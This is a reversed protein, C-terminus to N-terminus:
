PLALRDLLTSLYGNITELEGPAYGLLEDEAQIYQEPILEDRCNEVLARLSDPTTEIHFQLGVVRGDFSFAQNRCAPSSALHVAGPPLEFTDGHWHLVRWQGPLGALLPTKAAEDTLTVPYFGIEKIENRYVRAGFAAALLQAGLCVGLIKKGADIAEKIYELEGALWPHTATDNVGMPGGMVVLLDFADLPPLLEGAYVRTVELPFNRRGAWEAIFGPGEFPVHQLVQVKM